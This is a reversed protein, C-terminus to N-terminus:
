HYLFQSSMLLILVALPEITLLSQLSRKLTPTPSSPLIICCADVHRQVCPDQDDGRAETKLKAEDM